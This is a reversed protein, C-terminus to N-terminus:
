RDGRAMAGLLARDLEAAHHEFDVALKFQRVEFAVREPDDQGVLVLRETLIRGVLRLPAAELDVLDVTIGVAAELEAGLRLAVGFRADADRDGDFRVAVDLDSDARATGRAQSGFLYAFRVGHRSLVEAVRAQELLAFVDTQREAAISRALLEGVGDFDVAVDPAVWLAAGEYSGTRDATGGAFAAGCMLGLLEPFHALYGAADPFCWRIVPDAAFAAVLSAIARDPEVDLRPRPPATPATPASM